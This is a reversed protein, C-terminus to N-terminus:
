SDSRRRAGAALVFPQFFCYKFPFYDTDSASDAAGRFQSQYTYITFPIFRKIFDSPFFVGEGSRYRQPIRATHVTNIPKEFNAPPRAPLPLMLIGAAASRRITFGAATKAIERRPVSQAYMRLWLPASRRPVASRPASVSDREANVSGASAATSPERLSVLMPKLSDPNLAPVGPVPSAVFLTALLLQATVLPVCIVPVTVGASDLAVEPPPQPPLM